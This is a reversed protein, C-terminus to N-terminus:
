YLWWTLNVKIWTNFVWYLLFPPLLFFESYRRPPKAYLPEKNEPNWVGVFNYWQDQQNEMKYTTCYLVVQGDYNCLFTKMLWKIHIFKHIRQVNNNCNNGHIVLMRTCVCVLVERYNESKPCPGDRFRLRNFHSLPVKHCKPNRCTSQIVYRQTDVSANGLWQGLTATSLRPWKNCISLVTMIIQRQVFSADDPVWM